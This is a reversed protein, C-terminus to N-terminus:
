QSTELCFINGEFEFKTTDENMVLLNSNEAVIAESSIKVIQSARLFINARDVRVREQFGDCKKLFFTKLEIELNQLITGSTSNKTPGELVLKESNSRDCLLTGSLRSPPYGGM